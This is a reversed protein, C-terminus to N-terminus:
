NFSFSCKKSYFQKISNIETINIVTETSRTVDDDDDDNENDNNNNNDDKSIPHYHFAVIM